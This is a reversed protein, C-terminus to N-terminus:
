LIYEAKIKKKFLPKDRKCKNLKHYDRLNIDKFKSINEPLGQEGTFYNYFITLDDKYVGETKTSMATFKGTKFDYKDDYYLQELEPIGPEDTLHKNNGADDLNIGCVNPGIVINGNEDPDLSHNNKLSNIRNNCINLKYIERPTNKPIKGKEYLTARTTNGDADKYVYVPNITTIIAAFVHAIKIYFKAISICIRKKKISNQVDLKNITEKNFFIVNDKSEENVEVGNKIRHSLYTIELETFYREIIDSTLIVLNDCYDKDYLKRLSKFDITLIYYTAIYDLIHSIPKAKLENNIEKEPSSTKNGM